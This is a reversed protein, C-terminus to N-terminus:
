DWFERFERYAQLTVMQKGGLTFAMDVLRGTM